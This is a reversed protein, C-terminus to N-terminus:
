ALKKAKNKAAAIRKRESRKMWQGVYTFWIFLINTTESGAQGIKGVKEQTHPKRKRTWRNMMHYIQSRTFHTPLPNMVNSGIASLLRYYHLIWQLIKINLLQSRSKLTWCGVIFSMVVHVLESICMAKSFALTDRFIARHLWWLWVRCGWRICCVLSLKGAAGANLTSCQRLFWETQNPGFEWQYCMNCTNALQIIQEPKRATM